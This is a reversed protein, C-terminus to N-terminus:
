GKGLLENFLDLWLKMIVEETYQSSLLKARQGMDARLRNDQMLQIIRNALGAHDGEDVLFGNEGENIVDRPGCKCAYAVLPLGCAQAELLAMPLGEYRSTMALLAHQIYQSEIDKVPERLTIVDQLSYRQIQQQLRDQLPGQGFINLSWDPCKVKIEKWAEILDEFRKQYDYRGVAIVQKNSLDSVSKPVFSNANPIVSINPLAGWYGRDEQTLVVFREYRKAFAVDQKSRWQDILGWLGRRGYQLRKFRSFHIELIKKSKDKIKYLFSVEHDFMSLTVDPQLQLLLRSLRQQHKRQKLRYSLLKKVIGKGNNLVYNIGLDHQHVRADLPFFSAKGQQDTTIIHVDFGLRAFYNAKNTLVREMGGSNSTAAICYVIKM